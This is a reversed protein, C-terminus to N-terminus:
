IEQVQPKTDTMLKPFSEAMREKLGREYLGKEMLDLLMNIM